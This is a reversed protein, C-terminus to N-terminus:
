SELLQDMWTTQNVLKLVLSVHVPALAPDAPVGPVGVRPLVLGWAPLKGSAGDGLGVLRSLLDSHADLDRGIMLSVKHELDAGVVVRAM